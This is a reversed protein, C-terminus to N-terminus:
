AESGGLSLQDIQFGSRGPEHGCPKECSHWQWAIEVWYIDSQETWYVHYIRSYYTSWIDSLVYLPRGASRICYAVYGIRRLLILLGSLDRIFKRVSYQQGRNAGILRVHELTTNISPICMDSDNRHPPHIAPIFQILILDGTWMSPSLITTYYYYYYESYLNLIPYVIFVCIRVM